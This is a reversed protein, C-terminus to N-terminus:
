CYFSLTQKIESLLQNILHIQFINPISIGNGPPQQSKQSCIQINFNNNPNVFQNKTEPHCPSRSFSSSEASKPLPITSLMVTGGREGGGSDEDEEAGAGHVGGSNGGGGGTAESATPLIQKIHEIVKEWRLGGRGSWGFEKWTRPMRWITTFPVDLSNICCTPLEPNKPYKSARVPGKRSQSRPWHYNM